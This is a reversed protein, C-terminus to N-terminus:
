VFLSVVGVVIFMISFSFGFIMWMWYWGVKTSLADSEGIKSVVRRYYVSALVGVIGIVILVFGPYNMRALSIALWKMISTL